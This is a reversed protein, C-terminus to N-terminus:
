TNRSSYHSMKLSTSAYDQLHCMVPASVHLKIYMTFVFLFLLYPNHYAINYEWTIIDICLPYTEGLFLTTCLLWWAEISDMQWWRTNTIAKNFNPADFYTYCLSFRWKVLAQCTGIIFVTILSLVNTSNTLREAACARCGQCFCCALPLHYRMLKPPTDGKGARWV